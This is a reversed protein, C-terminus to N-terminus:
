VGVSIDQKLTLCFRVEQFEALSIDEEDDSSEELKATAIKKPRGRGRPKEQELSSGPPMNESDQDALGLCDPPLWNPLRKQSHLLPAETSLLSGLRKSLGLFVDREVIM